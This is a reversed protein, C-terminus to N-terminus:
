SRKKSKGVHQPGVLTRMLKLVIIMVVAGAIAMALSGANFVKDNVVGKNLMAPVFDGGIFAGFVGVLTNEIMVIRGDGPKKLMM